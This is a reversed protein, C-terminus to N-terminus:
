RERDQNPSRRNVLSYVARVQNIARVTDRQNMTNITSVMRMADEPSIGHAEVLVQVATEFQQPSAVEWDQMEAAITKLEQNMQELRTDQEAKFDRGEAQQEQRLRDGLTPSSKERESSEAAETESADTAEHKRGERAEYRDRLTEGTVKEPTERNRPNPNPPGEIGM